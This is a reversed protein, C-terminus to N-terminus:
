RVRRRDRIKDSQERFHPYADILVVVEKSDVGYQVIAYDLKDYFMKWAANKEKREYLKREISKGVTVITMAVVWLLAPVWIPSFVALWSSDVAGFIKLVSWVVVIWMIVTFM